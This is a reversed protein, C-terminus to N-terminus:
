FNYTIENRQSKVRTIHKLDRGPTQSDQRFNKHNEETGGPLHQSLAKFYTTAVEKWM